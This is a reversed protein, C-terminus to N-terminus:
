KEEQSRAVIEEESRMQLLMDLAEGVTRFNHAVKSEDPICVGLALGSHLFMPYDNVGNGVAIIEEKEVGMLAALFRMGSEKDIGVPTIDFSDVHRYVLVDELQERSDDILKQIIEFEKESAPFPTLGVLNPQYWLDPLIQELQEKLFGISEKAKQSYPQVYFYKPPLDVGLQIVAGNEGVLIPRKLGVQRLFGCLYYTPKGSCIAIFFGQEELERLKRVNEDRIGEGVAAITDDLDFAILKYM